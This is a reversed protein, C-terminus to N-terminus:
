VPHSKGMSLCNWEQAEYLVAIDKRELLDNEKVHHVKGEIKEMAYEFGLMIETLKPFLEFREKLFNFNGTM